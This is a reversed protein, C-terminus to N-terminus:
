QAYSLVIHGNKPILGFITELIFLHIKHLGKQDQCTSKRRSM